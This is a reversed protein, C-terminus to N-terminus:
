SLMELVFSPRYLKIAMDPEIALSVIGQSTIVRDLFKSLIHPSEGLGNQLPAQYVALAVTGHEFCSCLVACCRPERKLFGGSAIDVKSPYGIDPTQAGLTHDEALLLTLDIIVIEINLSRYIM